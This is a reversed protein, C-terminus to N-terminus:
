VKGIYYEGFFKDVLHYKMWSKSSSQKLYCHKYDQFLTVDSKSTLFSFYCGNEKYNEILVEFAGM